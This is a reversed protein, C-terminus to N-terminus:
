RPKVAGALRGIGSAADFRHSVRLMAIAQDLPTGAPDLM